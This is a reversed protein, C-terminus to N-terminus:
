NREVKYKEWARLSKTVKAKKHMKDHRNIAQVIRHTIFPHSPKGISKQSPVLSMAESVTRSLFKWNEEVTNKDPHQQFYNKSASM